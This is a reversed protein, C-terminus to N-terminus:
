DRRGWVETEQEIRRWLAQLQNSSLRVQSAGDKTGSRLEDAVMQAFDNKAAKTRVWEYAALATAPTHQTMWVRDRARTCPQNQEIRSRVSTSFSSIVLKVLKWTNENLNTTLPKNVKNVVATGYQIGTSFGM